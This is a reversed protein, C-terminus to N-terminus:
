TYQRLRPDACGRPDSLATHLPAGIIIGVIDRRIPNTLIELNLARDIKMKKSRYEAAFKVM